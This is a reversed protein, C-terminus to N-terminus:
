RIGHVKLALQLRDAVGLKKFVVSLHERVTREGIDLATSIDANSEGLAARRAVEHERETLESAWNEALQPRATNVAHVLRTVLSRGIWLEGSEVVDFIQQLQAPACYAHCYGVFGAEIAAIGETDQPHNSAFILQLRQALARWCPDSFAPLGSLVADIVVINEAADIQDFTRIHLIPAGDCAAQWRRALGDDPTALTITGNRM